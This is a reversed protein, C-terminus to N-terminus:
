NSFIVVVWVTEVEEELMLIQGFEREVEAKRSDSDEAL